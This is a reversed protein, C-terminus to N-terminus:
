CNHNDNWMFKNCKPCLPVEKPEDSVLTEHSKSVKMDEQTYVCDDKKRWIFKNCKPCYAQEGCNDCYVQTWDKYDFEKINGGLINAMEILYKKGVDKPLYIELHEWPSSAEYTKEIDEIKFQFVVESGFGSTGQRLSINVKGKLLKNDGKMCIIAKTDVDGGVKTYDNGNSDRTKWVM